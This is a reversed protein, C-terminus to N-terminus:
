HKEVFRTKIPLKYSALRFAAKANDLTVGGIEFIIHGIKVPAVFALPAGKGGGMRTEAPRGTIVKDAFIRLWVKGGRKLYHTLAKRASEIQNTSLYAVEMSQLAFEGFQITEGASAKGRLRRRQHKRFKTKAPILAM